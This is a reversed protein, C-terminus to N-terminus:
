PSKGRDDWPVSRLAVRPGAAVTARRFSRVEQRRPVDGMWGSTIGRLESVVAGNATCSPVDKSQEYPRGSISPVTPPGQSYPSTVNAM